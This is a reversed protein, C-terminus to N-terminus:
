GIWGRMFSRNLRLSVMMRPRSNMTPPTTVQLFDPLLRLFVGSRMSTTVAARATRVNIACFPGTRKLMGIVPRSRAVSRMSM